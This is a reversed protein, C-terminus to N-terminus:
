LSAPPTTALEITEPLTLPPPTSASHATPPTPVGNEEAPCLTKPSAVQVCLLRSWTLVLAWRAGIAALPPLVGVNRGRAPDGTSPNPPTDHGAVSWRPMLRGWTPQSLPETWAWPYRITADSPPMKVKPEAAKKPEM